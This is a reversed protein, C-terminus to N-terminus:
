VKTNQLHNMMPYGGIFIFDVFRVFLSIEMGQISFIRMPWLLKMEICPSQGRDTLLSSLRHEYLQYQPYLTNTWRIEHESMFYM